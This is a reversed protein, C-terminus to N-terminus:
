KEGPTFERTNPDYVDDPGAGVEAKMAEFCERAQQKTVQAAASLAQLQAQINQGRLNLNEFRLASLESVPRPAEKPKVVPKKAM